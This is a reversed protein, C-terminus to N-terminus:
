LHVCVHFCHCVRTNYRFTYLEESIYCEM